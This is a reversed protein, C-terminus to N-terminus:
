STEWSCAAPMRFFGTSLLRNQVGEFSWSSLYHMMWINVSCRRATVWSENFNKKGMTSNCCATLVGTGNGYWNGASSTANLHKTCAKGNQQHWQVVEIKKIICLAALPVKQSLIFSFEFPCWQVLIVINSWSITIKHFFTNKLSDLWVQCM